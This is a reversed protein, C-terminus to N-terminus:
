HPTKPPVAPNANSNGWVRLSAAAVRTVQRAAMESAGRQGEKCGRMM